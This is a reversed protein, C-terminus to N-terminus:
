LLAMKRRKKVEPQKKKKKKKRKNEGDDDSSSSDTSDDRGSKTKKKSYRVMSAAGTGGEEGPLAAHLTKELAVKVRQVKSNKAQKASLPGGKLPVTKSKEIAKKAADKGIAHAEQGADLELIRKGISPAEKVMPMLFPRLSAHAKGVGMSHQVGPGTSRGRFGIPRGAAGVPLGLGTALRSM